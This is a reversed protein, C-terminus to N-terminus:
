KKEFNIIPNWKCNPPNYLPERLNEYKAYYVDQM